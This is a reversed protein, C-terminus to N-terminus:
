SFGYIESRRNFARTGGELIDCCLKRTTEKDISGREVVVSKVNTSKLPIILEADGLVAINANHTVIIVQRNEKIRRLNYVITKYIFESDLNDEPQDIILPVKSKSQLLIALLISQQQGLSLHSLPKSVYDKQGHENTIVKTVTIRPLDQFRITYLEEFRQDTNFREFIRTIDPDTFVREGNLDTIAQLPAMQNKRIALAMEFPTLATAIFRARPVQNTRWDMTTKLLSEFEPSYKGSEYKVSVYLGDVANRLNNNIVEAFAIRAASIRNQAEKRKALLIRAADSAAKLEEKKDLLYKLRGQLYVVNQAIQNIKGLDFPIGQAELEKKKDEIKILIENEKSAWSAVQAKIAVVKEQLAGNLETAKEAVIKSFEEVIGKVQEFNEKGVVIEDDSLSAFSEFVTNDSLITKYNTILKNLDDVVSKRIERERILSTQHKVLDGVKDKKLQELKAEENVKMKETETIGAVESRLKTIESQANLYMARFQEEEIRFAEIDIFRDLFDLLIQPNEDSHQITETTEGQGYSEIPIKTLGNLPDTLNTVRGNKERSLTFTRGTEDEYDILIENPWVDCDVLKSGSSNGSTERLCELTTSKGTGRGGIICTLNDSFNVTQKDLLGGSIRIATFRPTSEPIQNELRIRSVHSILAVKFAHISLDDMKIRTLKNEGEANTGLKNLTHADSSMLVPFEFNEELNLTQRRLKILRKRDESEDSDTYNALSQKSSIEFGCLRPHCIVQEMQPGFRAITREFGSTLEIHALISIGDYQEALNLCDVIGQTCTQKDAAVTLKGYFGRLNEFTPFYLLLHGQTTSIEIGPIVLIDKGVAHQIARRSNNIENHDTISIVRLNKEIAKDVINEPTMSNDTVDFSGDEGFSHIHLDARVFKAGFNLTTDIM